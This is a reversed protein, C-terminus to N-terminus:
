RVKRYVLEFDKKWGSGDADMEWQATITQGGPALKGIFRQNFEPANRWYLSTWEATSDDAGVIWMGRPIEGQEVDDRVALYAGDEIWEFRARGRVEPFQPSEMTWDGILAAMSALRPGGKAKM